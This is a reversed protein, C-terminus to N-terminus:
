KAVFIFGIRVFPIKVCISFLERQRYIIYDKREKLFAFESCFCLFLCASYNSQCLYRVKNTQM